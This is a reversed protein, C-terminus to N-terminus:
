DLTYANTGGSILRAQLAAQIIRRCTRAGTLGSAALEDRLRADSASGGCRQIAWVVEQLDM